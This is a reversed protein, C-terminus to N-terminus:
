LEGKSNLKAKSCITDHTEHYSASTNFHVRGYPDQKQSLRIRGPSTRM